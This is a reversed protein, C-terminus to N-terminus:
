HIFVAILFKTCLAATFAAINVAGRVVHRGLLQMFVFVPNIATAATLFITNIGQRFFGVGM